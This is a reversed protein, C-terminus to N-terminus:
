QKVDCLTPGPKVFYVIYWTYHIITNEKSNLMYSHSIDFSFLLLNSSNISCDSMVGCSSQEIFLQLLDMMYTDATASTHAIGLLRVNSNYWVYNVSFSNM